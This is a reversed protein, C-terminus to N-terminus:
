AIKTSIQEIFAWLSAKTQDDIQTFQIGIQHKQPADEPLKTWAVKGNIKLPTPCGPVSLSLLIDQKKSPLFDNTATQICAGDTSLNLLLAAGKIQGCQFSHYNVFYEQLLPVRYTNRAGAMIEGLTAVFRESSSKSKENAEQDNKLNERDKCAASLLDKYRYLQSRLQSRDYSLGNSFVIIDKVPVEAKCTPCNIHELDALLPSIIDKECSSCKMKLM